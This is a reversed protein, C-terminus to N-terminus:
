APLSDRYSVLWGLVSRPGVAACKGVTAVTKDLVEYGGLNATYSALHHRIEAASQLHLRQKRASWNRNM